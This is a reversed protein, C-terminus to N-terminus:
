LKLLLDDLSELTSKLGGEMGMAIVTQLAEASDYTVVTEMLTHANLDSFKVEMKSSPYEPNVEGESNCFSDIGTFFEKPKISQYDTRSWYETGSPEIMAFVWHGGERFDMSKTRTILPKPAYWRDLLEQKTYCDWVTQRKAAFERKIHLSNKDKNVIFDFRLSHSM